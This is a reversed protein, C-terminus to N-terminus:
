GEPVHVVWVLMYDAANLKDERVQLSLANLCASARKKEIGLGTGVKGCWVRSM